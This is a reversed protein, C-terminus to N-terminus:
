KSNIEQIFTIPERTQYLHHMYGFFYGFLVSILISIITKAIIEIRQKSISLPKIHM